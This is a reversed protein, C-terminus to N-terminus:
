ADEDQEPLELERDIAALRRVLAVSRLPVTATRRRGDAMLLVVLGEDSVFEVRSRRLEDVQITTETMM